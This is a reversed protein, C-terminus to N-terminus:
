SDVDYVILIFILKKSYWVIIAFSWRTKGVLTIVIHFGKALQVHM